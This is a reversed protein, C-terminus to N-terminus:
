VTAKEKKTNESNAREKNRIIFYTFIAAAMAVIRGGEDVCPFAGCGVAARVRDALRTFSLVEAFRSASDGCCQCLRRETDHSISEPVILIRNCKQASVDARVMDMLTDTCNRWSTGMLIKLMADVGKCESCYVYCLIHGFYLM